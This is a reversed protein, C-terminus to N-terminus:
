RTAVNGRLLAADDHALLAISLAVEHSSVYEARVNAIEAGSMGRAEREALSARLLPTDVSGPCVNHVRVGHAAMHLAHTMLLGNIGGKSAGYPISGSPATTGAGSGLILQVGHGQPVMTRSAARTVLFTGTLNVDVIRRWADFSISTIERLQEGTVGAAHVLVDLGGMEAAAAAFATDVAVEDTVDLARVHDRLQVDFGIVRHGRKRFLDMCAGGIGSFAGTVIIRKNETMRRVYVNM